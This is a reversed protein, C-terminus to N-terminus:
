TLTLADSRVGTVEGLTQAFSLGPVSQGALPMACSLGIPPLPPPATEALVSGAVVLVSLALVVVARFLNM